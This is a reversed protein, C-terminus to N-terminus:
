DNTIWGFFGLGQALSSEYVQLTDIAKVLFLRSGFELLSTAWVFDDVLRLLNGCAAVREVERIDLKPHERKLVECYAGLDPSMVRDVFQALDTGPVGWGCLEWDFVLLVPGAAGEQIRVNKTVFDGHM